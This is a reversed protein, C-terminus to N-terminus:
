KKNIDEKTEARMKETVNFGLYKGLFLRTQADLAPIAGFAITM